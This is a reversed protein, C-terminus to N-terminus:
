EEEREKARRTTPAEERGMGKGIPEKLIPAWPAEASSGLAEGEERPEEGLDVFSREM